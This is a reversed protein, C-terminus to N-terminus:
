FGEDDWVSIHQEPPAKMANTVNAYTRGNAESHEIVLLWQTGVLLAEVDVDAGDKLQTDLVSTSVQQSIYGMLRGKDSLTANVFVSITMPRDDDVCDAHDRLKKSTQFILQLRDRIGYATEVGEHLRIASLVSPYPGGEPHLVFAKIERKLNVTM